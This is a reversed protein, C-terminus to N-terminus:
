IYDDYSISSTNQGVLIKLRCTAIKKVTDKNLIYNKEQNAMKRKKKMFSKWIDASNPRFNAYDIKVNIAKTNIIMHNAITYNEKKEM